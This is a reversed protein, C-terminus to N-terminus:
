IAEQVIQVLVIPELNFEDKAKRFSLRLEIARKAAYPNCGHYIVSYKVTDKMLMGDVLFHTFEFGMQHIMRYVELAGLAETPIHMYNRMLDGLAYKNIGFEKVLMKQTTLKKIILEM